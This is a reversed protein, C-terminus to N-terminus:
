SSSAPTKLVQDLSIVEILHNVLQYTIGEHFCVELVLGGESFQAFLTPGSCHDAEDYPLLKNAGIKSISSSQHAPISLSDVKRHVVLGTSLILLLSDFRLTAIYDESTYETSKCDCSGETVELALLYRDLVFLRFLFHNLVENQALRFDSYGRDVSM